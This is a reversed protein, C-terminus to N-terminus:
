TRRRVALRTVQVSCDLSGTLAVSKTPHWDVCTVPGSHGSIPHVSGGTGGPELCVLAADSTHSSLVLGAGSPDLAMRLPPRADGTLGGVGFEGGTRGVSGEADKAADKMEGADSRGVGCVGAVDLSHLVSRLRHLSWEYLAGDTGVSFVANQDASFALSTAAHGAGHASWGMIQKQANLDYLRIMGDDGATALMKGNHNFAAAHVVAGEPGLPLARLPRFLKLSWVTLSGRARPQPGSGTGPKVLPPPTATACVFVNETPSCRLDTFRPFAEDVSVDCVVRKNDVNWGKITGYSSALLLLKNARCDWELAQIPAGCSITASRSDASTGASLDPSWVRATGDASGSAVNAGDPSFRCHTIGATHWSFADRRLVDVATASYSDGRGDVTGAGESGLPSGPAAASPEASDATTVDATRASLPGALQASLGGGVAHRHHAPARGSRGGNVDDSSVDHAADAATSASAAGNRQGAREDEENSRGDLRERWRPSASGNGADTLGAASVERSARESTATATKAEAAQKKLASYRLSAETLERERSELLARVRSVEQKLARIENENAVRRRREEGFKLVAPLPASHMVESLFNHASLVVADAWGQAFFPAFRPDRGPQKVYLVGFWANWEENMAALREGEKEFLEAIKERKGQRVAAVVLLRVISTELRAVAPAFSADLRSFFRERLLGLTHRLGDVDLQPVHKNFILDVVKDVSDTRDNRAEADFTVLTGTFGRFILYERMLTDVYPVHEMAASASSRGVGVVPPPYPSARRSLALSVVM